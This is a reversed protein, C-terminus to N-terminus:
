MFHVYFNMIFENIKKDLIKDVKSDNLDMNESILMEVLKQIEEIIAFNYNENTFYYDSNQKSVNGSKYLLNYMENVRNITTLYQTSGRDVHKYFKGNYKWNDDVEAYRRIEPTDFTPSFYPAEIVQGDMVIYVLIRYISIDILHNVIDLVKENTVNKHIYICPSLATYKPMLMYTRDNDEESYPYFQYYNTAHAIITNNFLEMKSNADYASMVSQNSNELVSKDIDLGYYNKIDNYVGIVTNKVATHFNKENDIIKSKGSINYLGNKMLYYDLLEDYELKSFLFEAGNDKIKHRAELYEYYTIISKGFDIGYYDFLENPFSLTKYGVGLPICYRDKYLDILLNYKELKSYDYHQDAIDALKRADDLVIVNGTMMATNRKLEYDEYTIKKENYKVIEVPIDNIKCYALIKTAVSTVADNYYESDKYEYWWVQITDNDSKATNCSTLLISMTIILLLMNSLKTVITLLKNKM